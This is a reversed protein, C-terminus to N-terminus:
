CGTCISPIQGYAGTSGTSGNDRKSGGRAPANNQAAPPNPAPVNGQKEQLPPLDGPKPQRHGVPAESIGLGGTGQAGADTGLGTVSVLRGAEAATLRGTGKEDISDQFRRISARTLSGFIGDIPGDYFDLRHLAEQVQRRNAESMKEEDPVALAMAASPPPPATAQGPQASTAPTSPANPTPASAEPPPSAPAPSSAARNNEQSVPSSIQPASPTQVPGAPAEAISTPPPGSQTKERIAWYSVGAVLLAVIASAGLTLSTKMRMSLLGIEAVERVSWELDHNNGGSALDVPEDAMFVLDFKANPAGNHREPFPPFGDIWRGPCGCPALRRHPLGHPVDFALHRLRSSKSAQVLDSAKRRAPWLAPLVLKGRCGSNSPKSTM